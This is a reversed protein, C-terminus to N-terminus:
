LYTFFLRLIPQTIGCPLKWRPIVCGIGRSKQCIQVRVQPSASLDMSSLYHNSALFPFLDLGQAKPLMEHVQPISPGLVISEAVQAMKSPKDLM